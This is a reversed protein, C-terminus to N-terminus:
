ASSSEFRPPSLKLLLMKVTPTFRFYQTARPSPGPSSAPTLVKFHLPHGPFGSNTSPKGM